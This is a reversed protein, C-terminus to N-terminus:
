HNKHHHNPRVWGHGRCQSGRIVGCRDDHPLALVLAVNGVWLFLWLGCGCPPYPTLVLKKMDFMFYCTENMGVRGGVVYTFVHKQGCCSYQHHKNVVRRKWMDERPLQNKKRHKPIRQELAQRLTVKTKREVCVHSFGNTLMHREELKSVEQRNRRPANERPFLFSIRCPSAADCTFECQGTFGLCM